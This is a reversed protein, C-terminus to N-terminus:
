ATPDADPVKVAPKAPILDADEVPIFAGDQYLWFPADFRADWQEQTM